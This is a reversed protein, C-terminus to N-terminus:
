RRKKGSGVGLVGGIMGATGYLLLKVLVQVPVIAEASLFGAALVCGGLIMGAAGGTLLGHKKRLKAAAFGATLGAMASVFRTLWPIADRTLGLAPLVAAMLMLLLLAMAAGALLGALLPWLYAKMRVAVTRQDTKATKEM